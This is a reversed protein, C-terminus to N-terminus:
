MAWLSFSTIATVFMVLAADILLYFLANTSIVVYNVFLCTDVSRLNFYSRCLESVLM